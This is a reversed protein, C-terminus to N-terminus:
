SVCVEIAVGSVESAVLLELAEDEGRLGPGMDEARTLPPGCSVEVGRESLGHQLRGAILNALEALTSEIDADDATAPEGGLVTAVVMRAAGLACRVELTVVLDEDRAITVAAIRQPGRRDHPTVPRVVLREKLMMGCVQKLASLLNPKLQPHIKLLQSIPRLSGFLCSADELFTEPVSTRLTAGNWREDQRATELDQSEVVAIIQSEFMTPLRRLEAVLLDRHLLGLEEGVFVAAPATQRCQKLARVGSDSSIVRARSGLAKAFLDRFDACGDVIMVTAGPPLLASRPDTDGTDPGGNPHGSAAILRGLRAGTLTAELPKILYDSIGLTALRRVAGEDRQRTMILVPLSEHEPIRRVAELVRFGDIVPVDPDLLMFGFERKSLEELADLGNDVETVDCGFDRVLIRRVLIRTAADGDVVLANM